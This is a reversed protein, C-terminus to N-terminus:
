QDSDKHIQTVTSPLTVGIQRRHEAVCKKDLQEQLQADDIISQRYDEDDTGLEYYNVFHSHAIRALHRFRQRRQAQIALRQLPTRDAAIARDCAPWTQGEAVALACAIKEIAVLVCSPQSRRHAAHILYRYETRRQAADDSDWEPLNPNYDRAMEFCHFAALDRHSTNRNEDAM